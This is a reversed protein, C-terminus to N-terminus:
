ADQPRGPLVACGIRWLHITFLRMLQVVDREVFDEYSWATRDPGLVDYFGESVLGSFWDRALESQAFVARFDPWSGHTSVGTPKFATQPRLYAMAKRHMSATAWAAVRGVEGTGLPAGYNNNPIRAVQPGTVRAIAQGFAIGSLKDSISQVSFADLVANDALIPDIPYQRWMALRGCADGERSIPSLRRWELEYRQDDSLCDAFRESCRDDVQSAYRAGIPTYPLYFEYKSPALKKLPLNGGLFSKYCTNLGLDKFMYDAYCGTMLTGFNSTGWIVDDFGTHHGSDISWMGGSLRVTEAANEIYYDPSRRLAHHPTGFAAAIEKARALEPNPEDYYTYTHAETPDRLSALVGRSDAGASLLVVPTGMRASSRLQGASRLGDALREVFEPRTVRASPDPEARWYLQYSRERDVSLSYLAGPHLHTVERYYTHPYVSTGTHVFEAVTTEDLSLCLGLDRMVAAISDPHSGLVLPVPGASAYIPAWGIRDTRLQVSQRKSDIFVAIGAGNFAPVADDAKSLWRALLHRAALGGQYPTREAEDWEIASLAIRGSLLVTRGSEEDSAPFWMAPDDVRSVAYTVQGIRGGTTQARRTKILRSQLDSSSLHAGLTFLIDAM